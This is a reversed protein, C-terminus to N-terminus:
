RTENGNKGGGDLEDTLQGTKWLRLVLSTGIGSGTLSALVFWGYHLICPTTM